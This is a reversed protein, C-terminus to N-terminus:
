YLEGIGDRANTVHSGGTFLGVSMVSFMVKECGTAFPLFQIRARSSRYFTASPFARIFYEGLTNMVCDCKVEIRQIM